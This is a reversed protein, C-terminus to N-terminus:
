ACPGLGEEILRAAAVAAQGLALGGDNAPIDAHSLVAFGAAALRRRTEEFLVANQFCGGSLAVTDFAACQALRGAMDGVAEALGFHFKAAIVGSPLGAALDNLLPEWIPRPDIQSISLDHELMERRGPSPRSGNRRQEHPQVNSGPRRRPSPSRDANSLEFRYGDGRRLAERDVIAELRMAAEGEYAQRERCLGLAAAVADFLRGCSSAAPSNTGGAIMRDLIGRPKGALHSVIELGCFRASLEDWGIARTLQAYLNRWPERVAAPGGPMAIPALSALRRYRRYDALLFEGGWITGDDGWGLGDLVIGLVPPADLPRRNEALCAAVHAHHHQVEILPLGEARARDRALKASLYEPHRDAALAAPRHGFLERYLALNKCYDDFAAPHELDGQHQSLVAEGDKILCFAAKVEGGMALIEPAAAFGAPLRIAAPAYGRARRVLRPKGAIVRVVSDDVRNAIERDHMLAHSAISALREFADEDDTAQPEDSLNGSTMVAPRDLARMLLLHLPTTPLMFGLTDLGPALSEPLREPGSRRLLVIPAAPGALTREERAGVACYRRMMALDRAMLAFPKKDRRKLQRLRAVAEASRADCALQYGGLGKVAVIEGDAILRAAAAIPDGAVPRRDDLRVLSLRPGCVPCAIPEAHFRRDAPDRYETACEACMPFAAMTTRGRDYPIGRVISLRPGCHTCNTFAYGYRREGVTLLEAACAACIAADPAIETHPAGAESEAIRFGATVAGGSLPRREIGEIRALPPPNRALRDLLATIEGATGRARILVGSGDNLVEGDIGLERALRWVTPRFGVGQVRGRVRIEECVEECVPAPSVVAAV